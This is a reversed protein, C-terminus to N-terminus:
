DPGPALAVRPELANSLDVTLHALRSPPFARTMALELPWVQDRVWEMGHPGGLSFSEARLRRERVEPTGDTWIVRELSSLLSPHLGFPLAVVRLSGEDLPARLALDAQNLDLAESVAVLPDGPDQEAVEGPDRLWGYGDLFHVERGTAKLVLAVDRALDRVGSCRRGLVGITAAGGPVELKSLVHDIARARRVLIEPLCDIGAITAEASVSEGWQAYGRYLHVHPLGNAWAADRDGQRDGVMVAHRTGFTHLLDAIMGAKNSIGPSDLCRAERIWKSIGLGGLLADLYGQSCNSAVGLPVGMGDLQKLTEPVGPLLGARGEDLLRHEEEVCCDLLHKRDAAALEPFAAEFAEELPQGVMGMWVSGDPLDRDWGLDKFARLAGARAADPWYRDTAVLTGDLDFIVAQVMVREAM